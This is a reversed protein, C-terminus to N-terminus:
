GPHYRSSEIRSRREHTEFPRKPTRDFVDAKAEDRTRYPKRAM